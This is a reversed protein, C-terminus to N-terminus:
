SLATLIDLPNAVMPNAVMQAKFRGIRPPHEEFIAAASISGETSQVGHIQEGDNAGKFHPVLFTPGDQRM